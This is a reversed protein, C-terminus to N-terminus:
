ELVYEVPWRVRQKVPIGKKRAPNFKWSSAAQRFSAQFSAHPANINEIRDVKGNENVVFTITVVGGLALERARDPFPPAQVNVPIANEDVDGEEFVEANLEKQEIAVGDGTGAVSLDPTFNFKMTNQLPQSSSNGGTSRLATKQITKKEATKPKIYEAIIKRQPTSKLEPENIMEFLSKAAPLVLFLSVNIGLVIVANMTWSLMNAMFNM